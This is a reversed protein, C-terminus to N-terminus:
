WVTSDAPIPKSTKDQSQFAPCDAVAMKIRRRNRSELKTGHQRKSVGKGELLHSERTDHWNRTAARQVDCGPIANKHKLM